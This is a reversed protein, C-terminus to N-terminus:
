GKVEPTVGHLRTFLERRARALRSMVTGVPVKAVQSIERYSLGELERLILAERHEVSLENLAQRLLESNVKELLADEPGRSSDALERTTEADQLVLEEPRNSRLWTYATNRVIKLLWARADSGPKFTDFWRLARVYAEQVVDEADHPNRTIWRALNYASHLHPLVTHEFRGSVDRPLLEAPSM